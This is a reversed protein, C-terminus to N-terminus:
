VLNESQRGYTKELKRSIQRMVEPFADEFNMPNVKREDGSDFLKGELIDWSILSNGCVINRSLSPLLAQKM